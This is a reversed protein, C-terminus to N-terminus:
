WRRVPPISAAGASWCIWLRKWQIWFSYVRALRKLICLIGQLTILLVHSYRLPLRKGYQEAYKRYTLWEYDKPIERINGIVPLGKPGPPCPMCSRQGRLLLWWVVGVAASVCAIVPVTPLDTTLSM